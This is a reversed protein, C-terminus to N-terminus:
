QPNGLRSAGTFQLPMSAGRGDYRFGAASKLTITRDAYDLRVAFRALLENGIFGALPPQSGRHTFYAPLAVVHFGQDTMEANGMRVVDVQAISTTVLGGSSTRATASGKVELGLAAAAEPTLTNATGTDFIMPFPGRGNITVEIIPEGAEVSVPIVADSGSLIRSDMVRAGACAPAGVIVCALIAGSM